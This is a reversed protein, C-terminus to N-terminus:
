SVNAKMKHTKEKKQHVNNLDLNFDFAGNKLVHEMIRKKSYNILENVMKNRYCIFQHNYGNLFDEIRTIYPNLIPCQKCKDYVYELVDCAISACIEIIRFMYLPFHMIMIAYKTLDNEEYQNGYCVLVNHLFERNKKVLYLLFILLKTKMDYFLTAYMSFTMFGAFCLFNYLELM